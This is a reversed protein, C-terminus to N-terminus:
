ATKQRVHRNLRAIEPHAELFAIIEASTFDLREGFHDVVRRVLELDAPEDVSLRLDPRRCESPAGGVALTFAEPHATLYTVVHERYSTDNFTTAAAARRLAAVRVLEADGLGNPYGEFFVYDAPAEAYRGCVRDIVAPDILPCDATIRVLVDVHLEDAAQLYRGLVDTESGRVVAAEMSRGLQAVIDDAPSTTTAVAVGDLEHSQRCREIVYALVQRRGLPALVKDPLRTSGTRAQIVAIPRM